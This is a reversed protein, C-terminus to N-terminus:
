IAGTPHPKARVRDVCAFEWRPANPTGEKPGLFVFSGPGGCKNAAVREACALADDHCPVSYADQEPEKPRGALWGIAVLSLGLSTFTIGMLVTRM